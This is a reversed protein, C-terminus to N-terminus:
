LTEELGFAQVIIPRPSLTYLAMKKGQEIIIPCNALKIVETKHEEITSRYLMNKQELENDYVYLEIDVNGFGPRTIYISSIEKHTGLESEILDEPKIDLLIDNGLIEFPVVGNTPSALLGLSSSLKLLRTHVSFSSQAYTKSAIETVNKGVVDYIYITTGGISVIKDNSFSYTISRSANNQRRLVSQVSGFTVQLGNIEAILLAGSSNGFDRVAIGAKSEGLSFVDADGRIDLGSDKTFNDGVTIVDGVVEAVKGIFSNDSREGLFVKDNQLKSAVMDSNISVSEGFSIETNNEIVGVIVGSTHTILIKNQNIEVCSYVGTSFTRFVYSAGFTVEDNNIVGVMAKGQDDDDSDKYAVVFKNESLCSIRYNVNDSSYGEPFSYASGLVVNKELDINGVRAFFTGEQRYIIVFKNESLKITELREIDSSSIFTRNTVIEKSCLQKAQIGM